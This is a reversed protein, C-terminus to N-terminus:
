SKRAEASIIKEASYKIKNCEYPVSNGAKGAGNFAGHARVLSKLANGFDFDNNFVTTILEETKIYSSGWETQRETILEVLWEPIEMDYYSSSGGDSKVAGTASEPPQLAYYDEFDGVPRNDNSLTYTELTNVDEVTADTPFSLPHKSVDDEEVAIVRMVRGVLDTTLDVHFSGDNVVEFVDGLKLKM